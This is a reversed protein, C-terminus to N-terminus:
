FERCEQSEGFNRIGQYNGSIGQFKGSFERPIGQIGMWPFERSNGPLERMRSGPSNVSLEGSNGQFAISNGQIGWPCERPIGPDRSNWSERIGPFELIGPFNGPIERSNGSIERFNGSVERSIGPDPFQRPIGHFETLIGQFEGPLEM